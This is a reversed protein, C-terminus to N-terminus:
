DGGGDAFHVYGHHPLSKSGHQDRITVTPGTTVKGICKLSLNPFQRRWADQLAVADRSAVTFLLEFDEGDTLAALVPPKPSRGERHALKAARSVPLARALLEAGRPVPGTQLLHRLDSAIGDSLDIMAHPPFHVALWRAEALRPEFTLHKGALSGGLEGTVFLADGVEVGARRVCRGTEVTGLLAISLLLREPNTTTEGGAIAVGHRRALANLGAYIAEIRAPNFGTPLAITILAATPTGAMAAIDSLCRALAKHGIQEPPTDPTFHVGEVVADTKFLLRRGPIGLDLVACDDGAGVVVAANGPLSKTLRAILDLENM